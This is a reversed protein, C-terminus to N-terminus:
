AARHVSFRAMPVVDVDLTRADELGLLAESHFAALRMKLADSALPEALYREALEAARAHQHARLAARLVGRRAIEGEPDNAPLKTAIEEELCSVDFYAAAAGGTDGAAEATEARLIAATVSGYLEDLTPDQDNTMASTM